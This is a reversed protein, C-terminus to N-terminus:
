HSVPLGLIGKFGAWAAHAAGGVSIVVLTMVAKGVIGEARSRTKRVWVRDARSEEGTIERLVGFAQQTELPREPDVGMLLLWKRSAKDAAEDAVDRLLALVGPSIENPRRGEHESM